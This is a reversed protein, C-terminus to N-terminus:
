AAYVGSQKESINKDPESVLYYTAISWSRLQNHKRAAQSQIFDGQLPRRFNSARVLHEKKHHQPVHDFYVVNEYMSSLPFSVRSAIIVDNHITM